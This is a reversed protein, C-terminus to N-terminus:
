TTPVMTEDGNATGRRRLLVISTVLVWLVLLAMPLFFVALFFLLVGIIVGAWGLWTPLTGSRTAAWGASVLLLAAAAGGGLLLLAFGLQSGLYTISGVPLPSDGFAKAGPIWALAVAGALTVAAFLVAGGFVLRTTTSSAGDSALRDVLFSAFVLLALMAATLVFAGILIGTRHGSDAYYKHWASEALAPSHKIKDTTDPQGAALLVGVVYLVAFVIGAWAGSRKQAVVANV